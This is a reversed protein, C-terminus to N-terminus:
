SITALSITNASGIVPLGRLATVLGISLGTRRLASLVAREAHPNGGGIAVVVFDADRASIM